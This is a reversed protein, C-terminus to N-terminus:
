GAGSRASRADILPGQARHYRNGFEDEGVFQGHRKTYFELSVTSGSWWTFIRLLTDKLAM